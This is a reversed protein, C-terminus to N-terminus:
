LIFRATQSVSRAVIVHGRGGLLASHRTSGFFGWWTAVDIGQGSLGDHERRNKSTDLEM